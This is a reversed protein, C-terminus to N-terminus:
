RIGMGLGPLFPLCPMWNQGTRRKRENFTREVQLGLRGYAFSDNLLPYGVLFLQQYGVLFLQQYGVLFPGPFFAIQSQELSM